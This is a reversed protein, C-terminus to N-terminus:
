GDWVKGWVWWIELRAAIGRRALDCDMELVVEGTETGTRAGLGALVEEDVELVGLAVVERREGGAEGM